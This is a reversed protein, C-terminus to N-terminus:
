GKRRRGGEEETGDRGREVGGHLAFLLDMAATEPLKKV